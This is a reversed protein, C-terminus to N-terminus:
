LKGFSHGKTELRKKTLLSLSCTVALLFVYCLSIPACPLMRLLTINSLLFTTRPPLPYKLLLPLDTRVDIFGITHPLLDKGAAIPLMAGPAAAAAVDSASVRMCKLLRAGM